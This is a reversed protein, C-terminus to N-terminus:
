PWDTKIAVPSQPAAPKCYEFPLQTVPVTLFALSIALLGCTVATPPVVKAGCNLIDPLSVLTTPTSGPPISLAHSALPPPALVIKAFGVHCVPGPTGASEARSMGSTAIIAHAGYTKIPASLPPVGIIWHQQPPV